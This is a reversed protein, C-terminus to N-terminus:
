NYLIILRSFYDRVLLNRWTSCFEYFLLIILISLLPWINTSNNNLSCSTQVLQQLTFLAVLSICYASPDVFPTSDNTTAYRVMPTSVYKLALFGADSLLELTYKRQCITIDSSSRAVEHGLFYKLDGLNKIWFTTDLAKKICKIDVLPTGTM